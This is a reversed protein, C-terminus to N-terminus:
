YKQILITFALHWEDFFSRVSILCFADICLPQTLLDTVCFTCNQLKMPRNWFQLKKQTVPISDLRWFTTTKTHHTITLSEFPECYPKWMKRCKGCKYMCPQENIKHSGKQVNKIVKYMYLLRTGVKYTTSFFQTGSILDVYKTSGKECIFDPSM